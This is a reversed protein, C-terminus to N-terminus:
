AIGRFKNARRIITESPWQKKDPPLYIKGLYQKFRALGGLLNLTGLLQERAPNVRMVLTEDLFILGSDYARHYTPSLAIGNRVDDTSGPAGVPLIHAAEVLKLQMKTVACRNGYASIVQQRFNASRSLKSVTQVVRKREPDLPEMEDPPLSELSSALDILDLMRTDSGYRHLDVANIVYALFQDPRVGVAIEDNSKRDFAFGNQLARDIVQVDIQVSPSGESFKYHRQLDFGAFMERDPDYGMLVTFGDPNLVLPSTVTTMQIRFEQPLSPRGGHTLTWVYVWISLSHGEATSVLFQRPHKRPNSVLVASGGTEAIGEIIARLLIEPHVAPM